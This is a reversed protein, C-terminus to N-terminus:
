LDAGCSWLPWPVGLIVWGDGDQTLRYTQPESYGGIGFPGDTWTIEVQVRAGTDTTTTEILAVTGSTDHYGRELDELTCRGEPDLLAAAREYDHAFTAELFTQVTGEPTSLDLDASPQTARVIAAVVAVLVIVAVVAALMWAPKRGM